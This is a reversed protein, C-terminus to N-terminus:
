SNRKTGAHTFAKGIMKIYHGRDIGIDNGCLCEVRDGTQKVGYGRLIRDEYCRLVQGWGIKDYKWLKKKRAACRIVLV